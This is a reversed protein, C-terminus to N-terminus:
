SIYKKNKQYEGSNIRNRSERSYNGFTYGAITVIIFPTEVRSTSSLLSLSM